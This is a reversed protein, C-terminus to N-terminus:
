IALTLFHKRMGTSARYFYFCRIWMKGKMTSVFLRQSVKAWEPNLIVSRRGDALAMWVEGTRLFSQARNGYLIHNYQRSFFCFNKIFHLSHHCFLPHAYFPSYRLGLVNLLYQFTLTHWGNTYVVELVITNVLFWNNFLKNKM